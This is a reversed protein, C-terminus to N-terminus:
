SESQDYGYTIRRISNLYTPLVNADIYPEALHQLDVRINFTVSEFARNLEVLDTFGNEQFTVVKEHTEPRLAPLKEVEM